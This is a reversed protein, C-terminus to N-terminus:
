LIVGGRMIELAEAIEGDTAYQSSLQCAEVVTFGSFSSLPGIKNTAYGVYNRLASSAAQDTAEPLTLNPRTITLYPTRVSIQGASQGLKGSKSYSVKSSMVSNIGASALNAMGSQQSAINGALRVEGSGAKIAGSDIGSEIAEGVSAAGAMSVGASIAASALTVSGQIFSAWSTSSLPLFRACNGNYEAFVNNGKKLLAVCDGTVVNIKYTINLYESTIEDADLDVEGIFPLHLQYKTYPDYDLYSNFFKPIYVSGCNFTAYDSNVVNAGVHSNYNGIVIAEHSSTSPTVPIISLSLLADLPTTFYQKIMDWVNPDWLKAGLSRLATRSPNYVSYIGCNTGDIDPDGPVPVPDVPDVPQPPDPTPPTPVIPKYPDPDIDPDTPDIPETGVSWQATTGTNMPSCNLVQFRVGADALLTDNKRLICVADSAVNPNSYQIAPGSLINYPYYPMPAANLNMLNSCLKEVASRFADHYFKGQIHVSEILVQSANADTWINGNWNFTKVGVNVTVSVVRLPQTGTPPDNQTCIGEIYPVIFTNGSGFLGQTKSSYTNIQQAFEQGTWGGQVLTIIRNAYSSGMYSPAGFQTGRCIAAGLNRTSDQNYYYKLWNAGFGLYAFNWGEEVFDNNDSGSIRHNGSGIIVSVPTGVEFACGIVTKSYESGDDRLFTFSKKRNLLAM